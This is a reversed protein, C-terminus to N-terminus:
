CFILRSAILIIQLTSLRFGLQAQQTISTKRCAEQISPFSKSDSYAVYLM